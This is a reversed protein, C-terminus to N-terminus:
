QQRTNWVVSCWNGPWRRIAASICTCMAPWYKIAAIVEAQVEQGQRFTIKYLRPLEAPEVAIESYHFEHGRARTGAPGLLGPGMLTIERYGLAKLRPLMRVQLPLVGAMSHRHGELDEIEQSLYMLGGCEAYIPLGTAAKEAISRKMNENAALQAAYLEPYGGGLYIGHLNEPLNRDM